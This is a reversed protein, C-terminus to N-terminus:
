VSAIALNGVFSRRSPIKKYTRCCKVPRNEFVRLSLFFSLLSTSRHSPEWRCALRTSKSSKKSRGERTTRDIEFTFSITLAEPSSLFLADRNRKRAFSTVSSDRVSNSLLPCLKYSDHVSLYIFTQVHNRSIEEQEQKVTRGSVAQTM